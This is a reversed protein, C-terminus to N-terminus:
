GHVMEKLQKQCKAKQNKANDANTYDFQEAIAEMKKNEFFFARLIEFCKGGKKKLNLLEAEIRSIRAEKEEDYVEFDDVIKEDFNFDEPMKIEKNSRVFNLFKFRCVSNLYTQIASRKEFEGDRVKEYFVLIADQFIDHAVEHNAGNIKLYRIAKGKCKDYVHNLSKTNGTQLQAIIDEDSISIM